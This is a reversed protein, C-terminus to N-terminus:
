PMGRANEGRLLAWCTLSTAPSVWSTQARFKGSSTNLWPTMYRDIIGGLQPTVTIRRHSSSEDIPKKKGKYAMTSLGKKIQPCTLYYIRKLIDNLLGLIILKSNPGSHRLHETTLKYIDCAKRLKMEKNLITELDKIKMEPIQIADSGKFEFIYSNDLICLKYFENDFEKAEGVAQGLLEADATFGELTDQGHYTGLPTKLTTLSQRSKSSRINKIIKYFENKNNHDARMIANNDKIFKLEKEKRYQQQFMSRSHKYGQFLKCAPDRVKGGKKWVKHAKRLQLWAKHVSKSPKCTRRCKPIPKSELCLEASRVLISSYLECKLPIHEPLNFIQEYEALATAATDQYSQLNSIDWVIRQQAFDTYTHSYDVTPAATNRVPLQLLATVPDHSSLNDPTHLTCLSFIRSLKSSYDESILFYDINSESTGNHHHFTANSTSVKVLKLEKCLNYLAQIRRPSSKESCNSDTGIIITENDNRYKSVLNALDSTCELYESDKGSTPFYASIAIFKENESKIKVGALRDNTTKLTTVGSALSAHWMIASGHWIPDSNSLLDEPPTFMDPTSIHLSYDSFMENM